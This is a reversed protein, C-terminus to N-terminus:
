TGGIKCHSSKNVIMLMTPPATVSQDQRGASDENAVLGGGDALMQEGHQKCHQQQQQQQQHSHHHNHSHQLLPQGNGNGVGNGSNTTKGQGLGSGNTGALTSSNKRNTLQLTECGDLSKTLALREEVSIPSIQPQLSGPHNISNRGHQHRSGNFSTQQTHQSALHYNSRTSPSVNLRTATHCLSRDDYGGVRGGYAHSSRLCRCKELANKFERRFKGSMFNYIVPNVASNAYCLWHSFLSLVAVIDSQGIDVTYRAVNLMHVPFYCGAFMIVVAVLMKAAKRRARLQGMTSTNGVCNLTTRTSHVTRSGCPQNRSERHGPITDSRWLVRVIQFYAVTMFLLPLTYLLVFKFIYFTKETENDWTAVCQTFLKIDFRLKKRRTTLVLFEPLDSLFGILWILAISRWAREPRPKYRLPFCIAYWRDISIFTLTLVSVTVSVTQFYIVVKCMAKGMFWTETVDWVVTPPLCFLIVFFDAVALNVIFINTVTRMTHNTYVAICVLANGVLGMLFVVTHSAILIWEGTSPYIYDMLLQRYESYTLNCFDPDGVCTVNHDIFCNENYELQDSDDDCLADNHDNLNVASNSHATHNDELPSQLTALELEKLMGFASENATRNPPFQLVSSLDEALTGNTSAATMLTPPPPRDRNTTCNGDMSGPDQCIAGTGNDPWARAAALTHRAKSLDRRFLFHKEATPLPQPANARSHYFSTVSSPLDVTSHIVDAVSAGNAEYGEQDLRLPHSTSSSGIQAAHDLSSTLLTVPSDAPGDLPSWPNPEPPRWENSNMTAWDGNRVAGISIYSVHILMLKTWFTWSAACYMSSRHHWSKHWPGRRYSGM